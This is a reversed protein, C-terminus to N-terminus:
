ARQRSRNRPPSISGHLAHTRRRDHPIFRYIFTENSTDQGFVHIFETEDGRIWSLEQMSKWADEIPGVAVYSVKRKELTELWRSHDLSDLQGQRDKVKDPPVYVVKRDFHKGYLLYPRHSLLYGITQDKSINNEIYELIGDYVISRHGDRVRRAGYSVVFVVGILIFVAGLRLAGHGRGILRTWGVSKLLNWVLLLGVSSCLFVLALRQYPTSMVSLAGCVIVVSVIVPEKTGTLTSSLGAVVGLIGLMPFGFRISDGFWPTLQWNHTGDDATFPSNWYLLAAAVFLVVLGIFQRTQIQQRGSQARIPKNSRPRAAFPLLLLAVILQLLMALFPASLKALVQDILIKWHLLDGARFVTALTGRRLDASDVWGPFLNLGAISLRVYGLPNHVEILNRIYWYCGVVVFCLIGAIFVVGASEHLWSVAQVRRRQVMINITVMSAAFVALFGGYVVGNIKIGLVMGLMALLIALYTLQRTRLFLVSLYFGGVFFSALPLDVHLTGVHGLVYPITLSLSSAALSHIRAAGFHVSLLYVSIGLILWAVVNPLAVLFDERFPMMFLTCLVEWANPYRGTVQPRFVEPVELSATQYWHAMSPLHYGLSDYDTTPELIVILVAFAMVLAITGAVMKEFSNFPNTIAARRLFTALRPIGWGHVLLLIGVLFVFSESLLVPGLAFSHAIGLIVALFTEIVCWSTLLLFLCHAFGPKENKGEVVTLLLLSLPLPGAFIILFFVLETLHQTISM